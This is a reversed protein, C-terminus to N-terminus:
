LATVDRLTRERDGVLAGELASRVTKPDSPGGAAVVSGVSEQDFDVGLADYVPALVDRIATREAVTISGAVLAANQRVRQAIGAVKGGDVARVSYDGPCYSAAPEGAGVAAGCEVLADTVTEVAAEYREDLGQRTEDTPVAHAFALTTEAYAVARGGVSREVAPFGHNEAAKRAQEYGDARTDRRGFAVQKGPTWVRVAPVGTEGVREVM